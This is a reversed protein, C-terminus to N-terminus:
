KSYGLTILYDMVQRKAELIDSEGYNSTRERVIEIFKESGAFSYVRHVNGAINKIVKDNDSIALILPFDYPDMVNALEGLAESCIEELIQFDKAEPKKFFIEEDHALIKACNWRENNLGLKNLTKCYDIATSPLNFVSFSISEIVTDNGSINIVITDDEEVGELNSINIEDSIEKKIEDIKNKTNELIIKSFIWKGDELETKNIKECYEEAQKPYIRSLSLKDLKGNKGYANVVVMRKKM